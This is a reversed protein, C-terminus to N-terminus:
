KYKRIIKFIESINTFELTKHEKIPWFALTFYHNSQFKEDISKGNIKTLYIWPFNSIIELEINIKKLRKIFIEIKNM